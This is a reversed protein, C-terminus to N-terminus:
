MTGGVANAIATYLNFFKEGISRITGVSVVILVALLIAYETAAVANAEVAFRSWLLRPLKLSRRVM